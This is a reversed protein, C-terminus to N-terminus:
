FLIDHCLSGVGGTLSVVVREDDLLQQLRRHDVGGVLLDDVPILLAVGIPIEEVPNMAQGATQGGEAQLRALDCRDEIIVTRAIELQKKAM